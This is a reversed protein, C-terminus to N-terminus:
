RSCNEDIEGQGTVCSHSVRLVSWCSGRLRYQYQQRATGKLHLHSAHSVVEPMSDSRSIEQILSSDRNGESLIAEFAKIDLSRKSADNWLHEQSSRCPYVQSVPYAYPENLQVIGERAM